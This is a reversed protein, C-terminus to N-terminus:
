RSHCVKQEVVLARSTLFFCDITGWLFFATLSTHEWALEDGGVDRTEGEAVARPASRRTSNAATVFADTSAEIYSAIVFM